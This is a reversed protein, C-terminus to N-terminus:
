ARFREVLEIESLPRGTDLVLTAGWTQSIGDLYIGDLIGFGTFILDMVLASLIWHVLVHSAPITM